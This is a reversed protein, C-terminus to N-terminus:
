PRKRIARLFRRLVKGRGGYESRIQETCCRIALADAEEGEAGFLRMLNEVRCFDPRDNYVRCRRGGTDFHICWGDPGVMALYQRRQDESLAELAEPRLSPDLRCCAGCGQICRWAPQSM